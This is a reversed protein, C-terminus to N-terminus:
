KLKASFRAKDGQYNANDNYEQRAKKVADNADKAVVEVTYAKQFWTEIKPTVTVVYSRFQIAKKRIDLKVEVQALTGEFYTRAEGIVAYFVEKGERILKGIRADM